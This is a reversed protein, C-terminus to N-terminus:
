VTFFSFNSSVLSRLGYWAYVLLEDDAAFDRALTEMTPAFDALSFVQPGWFLFM